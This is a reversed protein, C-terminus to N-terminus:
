GEVGTKIRYAARVWEDPTEIDPHLQAARELWRECEARPDGWAVLIELADRQAPALRGAPSPAGAEPQALDEMQDRLTAIVLEATRKGIGPLRALAKADGSRIYAAIRRTPEALARLAKRPGIGNVSILRSFFQRDELHLFGIMRPVLQGAAQNGELFELTHLTVERGRLAALEGITFAPALVEWGVGSREVVASDEDVEVVVGTIRVIM